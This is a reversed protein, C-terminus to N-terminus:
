AGGLGGKLLNTNTKFFNLLGDENHLAFVYHLIAIIAYM